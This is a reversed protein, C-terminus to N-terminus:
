TDFVCPCVCVEILQVTAQKICLPRQERTKKRPTLPLARVQHPWCARTLLVIFLLRREIVGWDAGEGAPNARRFVKMGKCILVLVCAHVCVHMFTNIMGVVPIYPECDHHM